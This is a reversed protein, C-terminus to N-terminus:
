DILRRPAYMRLEGELEGVKKHLARIEESQTTPAPGSGGQAERLMIEAMADKLAGPKSLDIPEEPSGLAPEESIEEEGKGRKGGKGGKPQKEEKGGQEEGKGGKGGKGRKGGKGGKQEEKGGKKADGDAVKNNLRSSSRTGTKAKKKKPQQKDGKAPRGRGRKRAAALARADGVSSNRDEAQAQAVSTMQLPHALLADDIAKQAAAPSHLGPTTLQHSLVLTLEQARRQSTRLQQQIIDAVVGRRAKAFPAVLSAHLNSIAAGALSNIMPTDRPKGALKRLVSLVEEPRSSDLGWAHEHALHTELLKSGLLAAGVLSDIKPGLLTEDDLVMHRHMIRLEMSAPLEYLMVDEALKAVGGNKAGLKLELGEGRGVREIRFAIRTPTSASPYSVRSGSVAFGHSHAILVYTNMLKSGNMQFILDGPREDGWGSRIVTALGGSNAMVDSDFLRAEKADPLLLLMSISVDADRPAPQVPTSRALLGKFFLNHTKAQLLISPRPHSPVLRFYEPSDTGLLDVTEHHGDEHYIVMAQLKAELGTQQKISWVECTCYEVKEGTHVRIKLIDFPM